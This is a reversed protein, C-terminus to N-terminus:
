NSIVLCKSITESHASQEKVMWLNREDRQAISNKKSEVVCQLLELHVLYNKKKDPLYLSFHQIWIM